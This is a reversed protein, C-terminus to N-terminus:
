RGDIWGGTAQVPGIRGGESVWVAVAYRPAVTGGSGLRLAGTYVGDANPTAGSERYDLVVFDHRLTRGSNEGARVDTVLGFGLLAAHIQVGGRAVAAPEFRVSLTEDEYSARLRGGALRHDAAVAEVARGRWEHGNVVFGPTYMVGSGWQEAYARQRRAFRPDDFRDKWGMKDWYDVHFAVPVWRTWLETDTRLSSLWHEAPPCSSCGESTYLEILAKGPGSASLVIPAAGVVGSVLFVLFLVTLSRM